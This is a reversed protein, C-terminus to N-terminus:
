RSVLANEMGLVLVPREMYRIDGGTNRIQRVCIQYTSSITERIKFGVRLNLIGDALPGREQELHPVTGTGMGIVLSPRRGSLGSM